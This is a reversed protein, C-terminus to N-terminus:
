FIKIQKKLAKKLAIAIFSACICKIIDAIIFVSTISVISTFFDSGTYVMYFATGFSYIIPIGVFVTVIIYRLINENNGKMISIIFSAVAFGIIFGGSPSFIVGLGGQGGSFVPFGIVGLLIYILQAMLAYFPKLILATLVVVLFQMTFPLMIIPIPIVIFASVCLLASCISIYAMSLINLKM